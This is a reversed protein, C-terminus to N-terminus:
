GGGVRGGACRPHFRASMQAFAGPWTHPRAHAHTRAIHEVPKDRSVNNNGDTINFMTMARAPAHQLGGNSSRTCSTAGAHHNSRWSSTTTTSCFSSCISHRLRSVHENPVGSATTHLAARDADATSAATPRLTPMPALAPAPNPAADLVPRLRGFFANKRAPPSTFLARTPMSKTRGPVSGCWCPQGQRVPRTM